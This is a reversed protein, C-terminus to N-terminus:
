SRGWSAPADASAQDRISVGPKVQKVQMENAVAHRLAELETAFIIADFDSTRSAPDNYAMWLPESRHSAGPSPNSRRVPESAAVPAGTADPAPESIEDERPDIPDENEALRPLGTRLARPCDSAHRMLADTVGCEDCHFEDTAQM